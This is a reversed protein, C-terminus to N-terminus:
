LSDSFYLYLKVEAECDQWNVDIPQINRARALMVLLTELVSKGSRVTEQMVALIDPAYYSSYSEWSSLQRLCSAFFKTTQCSEQFVSEAEHHARKALACSISLDNATEHLYVIRNARRLLDQNEPRLTFGTDDSLVLIHDYESLFKRAGGVM